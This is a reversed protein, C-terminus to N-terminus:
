LHLSTHTYEHTHHRTHIRTHTHHRAVVYYTSFFTSVLISGAKKLTRDQRLNEGCCAAVVTRFTQAALKNRSGKTAMLDGLYTKLNAIVGAVAKAHRKDHGSVNEYKLLHRLEPKKLLKLLLEITDLVNGHVFLSKVLCKVIQLWM